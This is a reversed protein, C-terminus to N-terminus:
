DPLNEGVNDPAYTPKGDFRVVEVDVADGAVDVVLFHHFARDGASRVLPAGLGGTIYSRIGGQYFRAFEHVHSALILEVRAMKFMELASASEKEGRDGDEEMGHSSVGNHALPKHMGVFIHRVEPDSRAATLDKELWDLQDDGFGAQSVNDLAIFHVHGPLNVSYVIKKSLVSKLKQPNNDLFNKKFSDRAGDIGIPIAGILRVEHNGLVPFFGVNKALGDLERRFHADFSPTLEMDGLFLFASAGRAKAERFAWPLVHASDDRSDGGVILRVHGNAVPVDVTAAPREGAGGCAALAVFVLKRFM